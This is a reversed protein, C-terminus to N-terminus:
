AGTSGTSSPAGHVLVVKAVEGRAQAAVAANIDSFPFTGILKDFPFKGCRFLELLYPILTSPDSDGETIGRVTVGSVMAPVLPVAMTATVDHPVGVFGLTGRPALVAFAEELISPIGTTDFAYDVGRGSVARVKGELPGTAPDITTDAGLELALARRRPDPDSVIIPTCGRVKAAMVAALGVPGAGLVSLSQGAQCDLSNFVAGAGTQIGCGLPGVLEIPIDTGVKVVNRETALAHTAFSSQGFFAATVLQGDQTITSTGDPCLGSGYNRAGFEVCYAPQGDACQDCHGCSAFSLAVHDGPAVSTVEAGTAVVIGSGEHGLVMPYSLGFFGDRAAIDTHCLGIGKIEVLVEHAGPTALSVRELSFAGGPEAVVAATVSKSM